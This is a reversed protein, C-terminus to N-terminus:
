PSLSSTRSEIGELVRVAEGTGDENSLADAIRAASERYDENTALDGLAAALEDASLRRLRLPEPGAGLDRVRDGWFSQDGLVPCILTPRGARLGAATAGAGGHHVVAAVRPFLWDHPVEEVVHVDDDAPMRVAGWGKSVVARIGARRVAELIIEGRREADRAFGMSGFGIYVVPGRQALFAALEAPPTWERLPPRWWYGTIHASDPYDAPRPVVHRSFAYLVPMREGDPTHLYDSFRSTRRLGLMDTRFRNVMGGYALGASRNFAYTARNLRRGLPRSVVPIPFASTPTLFPLPLSAVAPVGLREAIHPGGLTKPHAVVVTPEFRQAIAWQEGLSVRMAASMRRALSLAERPGTSEGMGARMVDDMDTAMPEFRVADPVTDRYAEPAGLAVDHGEAALREALAAFPAIDGRTGVTLILVRM